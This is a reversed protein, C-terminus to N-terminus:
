VKGKMKVVCLLGLLHEFTWGDRKFAEISIEGKELVNETTVNEWDHLVSALHRAAAQWHAETAQGVAHVARFDDLAKTDVLGPSCLLRVPENGPVQWEIWQKGSLPKVYQLFRSSKM